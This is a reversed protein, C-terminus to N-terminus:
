ATQTRVSITLLELLELMKDRVAERISLIERLPLALLSTLAHLIGATEKWGAAKSADRLAASVDCAYRRTPEDWGTSIVEHVSSELRALAKSFDTEGNSRLSASAEDHHKM